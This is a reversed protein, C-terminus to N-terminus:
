KKISGDIFYWNITYNKDFQITAIQRHRQPLETRCEPGKKFCSPRHYCDHVNFRLQIWPHRINFQKINNELSNSANLSSTSDHCDPPKMYDTNQMHYPFTYALIGLQHNSFHNISSDRGLLLNTNKKEVITKSDITKIREDQETQCVNNNIPYYGIVGHLNQCHVHHRMHRLDQDRPPILVNNLNHIPKPVCSSTSDFDFMDGFSAQAISQFYNELETKASNRIQEDNHFLLNRVANFNEIWILIHSHLTYRAQEECCDAYALPVGFIGNTGIKTKENWGILINIVIQIISRYELVCAGPYKGRLKKRTNLDLLCYKQNEIDKIDPLKHEQSTAYLRVRFSCEDCPTVTFFVAPAGFYHWLSFLKQRAYSAAENSHGISSSQGRISTFLKKLTCNTTKEGSLIHKAATEVEKTVFNILM